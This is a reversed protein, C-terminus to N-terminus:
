NKLLFSVSLVILNFPNWGKVVMNLSIKTRQKTRYAMSVYNYNENM